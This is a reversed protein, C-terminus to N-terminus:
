KITPHIIRWNLLESVTDYSPNPNIKIDETDDSVGKEETTAFGVIKASNAAGQMSHSSSETHIHKNEDEPAEIDKLVSSYSPNDQIAINYEPKTADHAGEARRHSSNADMKITDHQIEFKNHPIVYEYQDQKRKEANDSRNHLVYDYQDEQKQKQKTISYSPNATMNIDLSTETVM